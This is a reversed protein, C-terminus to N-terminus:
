ATRAVEEDEVKIEKSKCGRAIERYDSLKIKPLVFVKAKFEFPNNPALKLIEIEPSGLVELNNDKVARPYFVKLAMNAAEKLVEGQDLSKGAMEKPVQGKRFGKIEINKSLLEVARVIFKKFEESSVTIKIEKKTQDINIISVDM